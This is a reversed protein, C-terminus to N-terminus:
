RLLHASESYAKYVARMFNEALEVSSDGNDKLDLMLSLHEGFTASRHRYEGRSLSRTMAYLDGPYCQPEFEVVDRKKGKANEVHIGCRCDEGAYLIM